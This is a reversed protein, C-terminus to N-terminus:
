RFKGMSYQGRSDPTFRTPADEVDWDELMTRYSIARQQCRDMISQPQGTALEDALGWRLAIRWEIPFNM